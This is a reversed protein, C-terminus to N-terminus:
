SNPRAQTQTMEDQFKRVYEIISSKSEVQIGVFKMGVYGNPAVYVVEASAHIPAYLNPSKLIVKLRDGIRCQAGESAGLGGESISLAKLDFKGSVGECHLSGMIPVRPHKRRSIGLDDAIQHIQFIQRWDTYGETWVLIQEVDDRTKLVDVMQEYTLNETEHDDIKLKWKRDDSPRSSLSSTGTTAEENLHRNWRDMSIWEPLGQGWVQMQPWSTSLSSIEDKQFPGKVIGDVLAFYQAKM